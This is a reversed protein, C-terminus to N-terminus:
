VKLIKRLRQLRIGPILYGLSAFFLVTFILKLKKLSRISNPLTRTVIRKLLDRERSLVNGERVDGYYAKLMRRTQGIWYSREAIFNFTLRYHHVKHFVHVKPNYVIRKRMVDEIIMSYGLDEPLPGRYYGLRTPWLGCRDFVVRRLAMNFGQVNRVDTIENWESWATCSLLWDLEKPFWNDSPDLFLPSASGTVAVISEDRFTKMLEEAWEASLVVDDDAFAVIEGKSALIGVNRAECLGHQGENM